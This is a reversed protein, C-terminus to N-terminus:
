WARCRIATCGSALQRTESRTTLFREQAVVVAPAEQRVVVVMLVRKHVDIAALTRYESTM